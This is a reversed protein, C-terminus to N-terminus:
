RFMMQCNFRFPHASRLRDSIRQSASRSFGQRTIDNVRLRNYAQKGPCALIIAALCLLLLPVVTLNIVQWGFLHHFGGACLATITVTTYILFDNAAQVKAKEHPEYTETVLTTGGVFLFNWCVGLLVLALTFHELTTGTLNIVVCTLGAIVGLLLVPVIGIRNIIHGTFFSPLFMSVVHWQIVFATSQLPHSVAAMALPTSSMVLNMTGYGLMGCLTAVIFKPQTAITLLPRGRTGKPTSSPPPLRTMSITLLSLIYIGIMVIFAGTFRNGQVMNETLHALNPGIFAAIVGGAMVYSIAVNKRESGVVDAAAFRYYNGFAAFIGFLFTAVCFLLFKDYLTAFTAITAGSMGVLAAFMFANRRGIRQMLLSAPITTSMVALFQLAMPVTALTKDPALALGILASITILLSNGIFLLANCFSLLYVSIPM